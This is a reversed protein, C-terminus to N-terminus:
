IKEISSVCSNTTSRSFRLNRGHIGVENRFKKNCYYELSMPQTVCIKRINRLNSKKYIINWIFKLFLKNCVFTPLPNKLCEYMKCLRKYKCAM